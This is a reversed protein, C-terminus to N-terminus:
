WEERPLSAAQMAALGRDLHGEERGYVADLQETIGNERRRALFERLAQTYLQSRNVGLRRAADEAERFVPEPVSVATKLTKAHKEM